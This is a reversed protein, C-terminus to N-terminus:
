KYGKAGDARIQEIVTDTKLGDDFSCIESPRNKLICDVFYDLQRTFEFGRVFFRVPETLSPYYKINWGQSYEESEPADKFFVKLTRLDAIIKGKRGLVEFYNDPKRYSSDSWNVILNGCLGEKYIFTSIVADEVDKSFIRQFVTGVINDPPGILYNILDIGHSAFDYLCGGGESRNSRWSKKAGHLVTPGNIELRFKYLEGLVKQDLLEKVKMFVDSFRVVYGVQHVLDKGELLSMLENGQAPNLTFPKEVFVHSDNLIATKVVDMHMATPVAAITFDPKMERFMKHYDDYAEVGLYKAANYRVFGSSDCVAVFKVQPHRNLISYHTIGMRGFGVITGRIM